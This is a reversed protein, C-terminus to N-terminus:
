IIEDRPSNPTVPRCAPKVKQLPRATHRVGKNVGGRGVKLSCRRNWASVLQAFGFEGPLPCGLAFM